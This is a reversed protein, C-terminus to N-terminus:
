LWSQHLTCGVGHEHLELGARYVPGSYLGSFHKNAAGLTLYRPIPTELEPHTCVSIIEWKGQEMSPFPRWHNRPIRFKNWRFLMLLDDSRSDPFSYTKRQWWFLERWTWMLTGTRCIRTGLLLNEWIWTYKITLLNGLCCFTDKGALNTSFSQYQLPSLFKM